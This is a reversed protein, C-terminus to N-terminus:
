KRYHKIIANISYSTFCWVAHFLNLKESRRLVFWFRKAARLRNSSVSGDVLRYMALDEQLCHAKNGQKLLLLWLATDEPKINPFKIDEMKHKDLIVTLCGIITNKLLQNYSIISPCKVLKDTEQGDETIMRYNTFSFGIDREKMYAIQRELKVPEWLDDSDLFALYRGKACKIAENRANAAGRNKKLKILKIRSENLILREIIEVTADSSGDDAIILEWNLYSQRLVSKITKKIFRSSNYAPMIISVKDEM